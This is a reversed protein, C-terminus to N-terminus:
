AGVGGGGSISVAPAATYGSGPEDILVGVVRGEPSLTANGRAQIGGAIDPATILVEPQTIYGSGEALVTIRDIKDGTRNIGVRPTKTVPELLARMVEKEDSGAGSRISVENDGILSPAGARIQEKDSNFKFSM